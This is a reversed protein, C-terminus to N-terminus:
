FVMKQFFNSLNLFSHRNNIIMDVEINRNLSDEILYKDVINRVFTIYQYSSIRLINFYIKMKMKKNKVFFSFINRRFRYYTKM